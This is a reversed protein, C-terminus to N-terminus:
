EFKLYFFITSVLIKDLKHINHMSLKKKKQRQTKEIIVQNDNELYIYNM